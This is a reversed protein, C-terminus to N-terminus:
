LYTGSAYQRATMSPGDRRAGHGNFYGYPAPYSHRFKERNETNNKSKAFDRDDDPQQSYWPGKTTNRNRDYFQTDDELPQRTGNTYPVNGSPYQETEYPHPEQRYEYPDPYPVIGGENMEDAYEDTIEEYVEQYGILNGDNDYVGIIRRKYSSEPKRPPVKYPDPYEELQGDYDDPYEGGPASQYTYAEQPPQLAPEEGGWGYPPPEPWREGNEENPERPYYKDRDDVGNEPPVDHHPAHAHLLGDLKFQEERSMARFRRPQVQQDDSEDEDPYKEPQDNDRSPVPQFAGANLRVDSGKIFPFREPDISKPVQPRPLAQASILIREPEAPPSSYSPPLPASEVEPASVVVPPVDGEESEQSFSEEDNDEPESPALELPHTVLPNGEASYDVTVGVPEGIIVTGPLQSVSIELESRSRSLGATVVRSRVREQVSVGLEVEPKGEVDITLSTTESKDPVVPRGAKLEAVEARSLEYRKYLSQIEKSLEVVHLSLKENKKECEDLQGSKGDLKEQVEKVNDELFRIRNHLVSEDKESAPIRSQLLQIERELMIIHNDKDGDDMEEIARNKDSLEKGLKNITDERSLLEKKIWKAQEEAQQKQKSARQLEIELHTIRTHSKHFDKSLGEIEMNAQSLKIEVEALKESDKRLESQLNNKEKQLSDKEDEVEDLQLKLSEFKEQWGDESTQRNLSRKLEELEELHRKCEEEKKRLTEKLKRLEKELDGTDKALKLESLQRRLTATETHADNLERRVKGYKTKTQEHEDETRELNRELRQREMQVSNKERKLEEHKQKWNEDDDKRKLKAKLDSIEAELRRIKEELEKSKSKLKDTESIHLDEEEKLEESLDKVEDKLKETEKKLDENEDCLEGYMLKGKEFKEKLEELDDDVDEKEKALKENEEKLKREDELIKDYKDKLKEYEEIEEKLKKEDELIKDYKDKLKEYEEILEDKTDHEKLELLEQRAKELEGEIYDQEKLKEELDSIINQDQAQDKRLKNIVMEKEILEKRMEECRENLHTITKSLEDTTKKARDESEELCEEVKEKEQKTRELLEELEQIQSKAYDQSSWSDGSEKPVAALTPTEGVAVVREETFDDTEDFDSLDDEIPALPASQVVRLHEVVVKEPDEEEEYKSKEEDMIHGALESQLSIVEDRLQELEETLEENEQRLRNREDGDEQDLEAAFQSLEREQADDLQRKLSAIDDKLDEIEARLASITKDKDFVDKKYLEARVHSENLQKTWQKSDMEAKNKSDVFQLYLLEKEKCVEKLNMELQSIKKNQVELRNTGERILSERSDKEDELNGELETVLGRLHSMEKELEINRARSNHSNEEAENVQALYDVIQHKMEEIVEDDASLKIQLNKLKEELDDVEKRLEDKEQQLKDNETAIEEYKLKLSEMEQTLDDDGRGCYKCKKEDDISEYQPMTDRLDNSDTTQYKDLQTVLEDNEKTAADLLDQLNANDRKIEEAKEQEEKYIRITAELKEITIKLLKNEEVVTKFTIEHESFTRHYSFAANKLVGIKEETNECANELNRLKTRTNRLEQELEGLRDQAEFFRTKFDEDAPLEEVKFRIKEETTTSNTTQSVYETKERNVELDFAAEESDRPVERDNTRDFSERNSSVADSTDSM